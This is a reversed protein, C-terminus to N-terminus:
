AERSCVDCVRPCTACGGLCSRTARVRDKIMDELQRKQSQLQAHYAPPLTERVFNQERADNGSQRLRKRAEVLPKYTTPRPGEWSSRCPRSPVKKSAMLNIRRPDSLMHFTQKHEFSVM